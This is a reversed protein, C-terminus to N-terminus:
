KKTSKPRKFVLSVKDESYEDTVIYLFESLATALDDFEEVRDVEKTRSKKFDYQTDGNKIVLKFAMNNGKRSNNRPTPFLPVQISDFKM